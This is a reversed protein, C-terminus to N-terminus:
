KIIKYIPYSKDTNKVIIECEMPFDIYNYGVSYMYKFDAIIESPKFEGKIIIGIDGPEFWNPENMRPDPHEVTTYGRAFREAIRIDTTWSHGATRMSNGIKLNKFKDNNESAPKFLGRYATYIKDQKVLSEDGIFNELQPDFPTQSIRQYKLIWQKLLNNIKPSINKSQIHKHNTADRDIDWLASPIKHIPYNPTDYKKFKEEAAIADELTKYKGFIKYLFPLAKSTMEIKENSYNVLKNKIFYKLAESFDIGMRSDNKLSSIGIEGTKKYVYLSMLYAAIRIETENSSIENIM